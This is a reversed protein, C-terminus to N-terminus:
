ARMMRMSHRMNCHGDMTETVELREAFNILDHLTHDILEFGQVVMQKQWANPIGCEVLEVLQDDSLAQNEGFPLFEKLYKNLEYIRAVYARILMGAPKRMFHQM